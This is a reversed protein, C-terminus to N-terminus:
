GSPDHDTSGDAWPPLSESLSLSLSSIMSIEAGLACLEVTPAPVGLDYEVIVGFLMIEVFTAPDFLCDSTISRVKDSSSVGPGGGM